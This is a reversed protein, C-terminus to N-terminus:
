GGCACRALNRPRPNARPSFRLREPLPADLGPVVGELARVLVSPVDALSDDGVVAWVAEVLARGLLLVPGDLVPFGVEDDNDFSGISYLDDDMAQMHAIEAEVM